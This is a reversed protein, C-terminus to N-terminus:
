GWRSVKSKKYVEYIFDMVGCVAMIPCCLILLIWTIPNYLYLQECRFWNNKNKSQEFWDRPEFWVKIIGLKILYKNKISTNKIYDSRMQKALDIRM